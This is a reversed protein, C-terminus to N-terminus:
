SYLILTLIFFRKSLFLKRIKKSKKLYKSSSLDKKLMYIILFNCFHICFILYKEIAFYSWLFFYSLFSMVNCLLSSLSTKERCPCSCKFLRLYVILVSSDSRDGWKDDPEVKKYEERNKSSFMPMDGNRELCTRRRMPRWKTELIYQQVKYGLVVTRSRTGVNYLCTWARRKFLSINREIRLCYFRENRILLPFAYKLVRPRIWAVIIFSISVLKTKM